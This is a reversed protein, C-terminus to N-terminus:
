TRARRVTLSPLPRVSVISTTGTLAGQHHDVRVVSVAPSGDPNCAFRCFLRM